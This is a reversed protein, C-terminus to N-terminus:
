LDTWKYIWGAGYRSVEVCRQYKQNPARRAVTTQQWARDDQQRSLRAKAADCLAVCYCSPYTCSVSM